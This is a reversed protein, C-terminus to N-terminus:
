GRLHQTIQHLLDTPTIWMSPYEGYWRQTGTTDILVFGHGPLDAHM